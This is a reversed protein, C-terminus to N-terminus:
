GYNWPHDASLLHGLEDCGSKRRSGTRPEIINHCEPCVVQFNAPELALTMSKAVPRRRRVHLEGGALCPPMAGPAPTVRRSAPLAVHGNGSQRRTSRHATTPWTARFVMSM